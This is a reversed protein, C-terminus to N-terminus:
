ITKDDVSWCCDCCGGFSELIKEGVPENECGTVIEPDPKLPAFLTINLERRACILEWDSVWSTTVFIAITPVM